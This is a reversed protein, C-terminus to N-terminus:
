VLDEIQAKKAYMKTTLFYVKMIEGLDFSKDKVVEDVAEKKFERKKETTASGEKLEYEILKQTYIKNIRENNQKVLNITLNKKIEHTYPDVEAFALDSSNEATMAKILRNMIEKKAGKAGDSFWADMVSQRLNPISNDKLTRSINKQLINNLEHLTDLMNNYFEYVISNNRIKDFDENHWGTEVVSGKIYKRPIVTTYAHGKAPITTEDSVFPVNNDVVDAYYYPSYVKNWNDFIKDKEEKTTKPNNYIDDRTLERTMEFEELNKEALRYMRDYETKGILEVIERKLKDEDHKTFKKGDYILNGDSDKRDRFIVRWDLLINNKDFWKYYDKWDEMTGGDIANKFEIAAADDYEPRFQRILNGTQKSDRHKERLIDYPNPSNSMKKLEPITQKLLLDFSEEFDRFEDKAEAMLRFNINSVSQFMVNNTRNISMTHAHVGTYDRQNQFEEHINIDRDVEKSLEANIFKRELAEITRKLKRAEGEIDSFGFFNDSVDLSTDGEGYLIYNSNPSEPFYTEVAELWTNVLSKAYIIDRSLLKNKKLANSANRLDIFAIRSMAVADMRSEINEINRKISSTKKHLEYVGRLDNNLRAVSIQKYTESLLSKKQAVIDRARRVDNRDVEDNSYAKFNYEKKKGTDRTIRKPSDYTGFKNSLLDMVENFLPEGNKDLKNIQGVEAFKSSSLYAYAKLALDRDGEFTNLVDSFLKSDKGNPAYIRVRAIGNKCIAM